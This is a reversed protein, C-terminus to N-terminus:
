SKTAGWGPWSDTLKNVVLLLLQQWPAQAAAQDIKCHEVHCCILGSSELDKEEQARLGFSGELVHARFICGRSVARDRRLDCAGRETSESRTTRQVRECFKPSQAQSRRAYPPAQM